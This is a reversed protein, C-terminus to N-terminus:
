YANMRVRATYCKHFEAVKNECLETELRVSKIEELALCQNSQIANGNLIVGTDITEIRVSTKDYNSLESVVSCWYM